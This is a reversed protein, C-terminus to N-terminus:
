EVGHPEETMEESDTWEERCGDCLWVSAGTEDKVEKINDKGQCSECVWSDIGFSALRDQKSNTNEYRQNIEDECEKIYEEWEHITDIDYVSCNKTAERWKDAWPLPIRKKM